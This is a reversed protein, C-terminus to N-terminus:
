QKLKKINEQHMKANYTKQTFKAFDINVCSPKYPDLNDNIYVNNRDYWGGRILILENRKMIIDGFEDIGVDAANQNIAKAAENEESTFWLNVTDVGEINEIIAILDSKPIKDRRRNNLFYSSLKDEIQQRIVDKSYDSFIGLSINIIYRKVTPDIVQMVTTVIKQGSEEILSYINNKEDQKLLFNEQPVTFYNENSKIRKNIDPVLFLYIVNDDSIDEDNFTTFADIYSFYNFKELFYIYNLPNALVFNRSFNPSLLKTLFLPESESGFSINTETTINFIDSIKLENGLVDYGVDDFKWSVNDTLRINGDVGANVLYEIRIEAGSPPIAGKYGNGFFIDIGGSL